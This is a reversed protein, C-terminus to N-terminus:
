HVYLLQNKCGPDANSTVSDFADTHRDTFMKHVFRKIYPRSIQCWSGGHCYRPPTQHDLDSTLIVLNFVSTKSM